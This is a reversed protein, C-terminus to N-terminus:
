KKPRIFIYKFLVIIGSIGGVLTQMILSASGPDLYALM